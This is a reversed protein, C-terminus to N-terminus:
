KEGRFEKIAQECKMSADVMQIPHIIFGDKKAIARAHVVSQVAEVLKEAKKNTTAITRAQSLVTGAWLHYPQGLTKELEKIVSLDNELEVIKANATALAEKVTYYDEIGKKGQKWKELEEIADEMRSIYEGREKVKAELELKDDCMTGITNHAEKLKSDIAIYKQGLKKNEELLNLFQHPSWGSYESLKKEAEALKSELESIKTFHEAICMEVQAKKFDEFKEINANREAELREIQCSQCVRPSADAMFAHELHPCSGEIKFMKVGGKPIGYNSVEEPKDM